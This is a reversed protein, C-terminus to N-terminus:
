IKLLVTAAEQWNKDIFSMVLVAKIPKKLILM